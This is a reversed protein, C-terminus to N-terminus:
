LNWFTIANQEIEQIIDATIDTKYMIFENFSTNSHNNSQDGNAWGITFNDTITCPGTTHLGNLQENGQTKIIVNTTTRIFTYLKWLGVNSTNPIYRSSNCCIGPDFYLNNNSWNIHTSWRNAGQLVGFSHQSKTTANAILIVTGNVGSNTVNQISENIELHDDTGDGTFYPMSANAFFQPQKNFDSQVAHRDLGSQDYWTSIFVQDSGAWNNIEDINVIDNDDWYFDKETNDNSRRLRIIPGNYDSVIVRMSMAFSINDLKDDLIHKPQMSPYQIYNLVQGLSPTLFMLLLLIFSIYKM